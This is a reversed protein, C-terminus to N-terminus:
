SFINYLVDVLLFNVSGDAQEWCFGHMVWYMMIIFWM